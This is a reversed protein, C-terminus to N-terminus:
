PGSASTPAASAPVATSTLTAAASSTAATAGHCPATAAANAAAAACHGQDPDAEDVNRGGCASRRRQRKGPAQASLLQSRVLRANIAMVLLPQPPFQRRRRDGAHHGPGDQM